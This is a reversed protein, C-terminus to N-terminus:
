HAAPPPTGPGVGPAAGVADAPIAAGAGAPAAGVPATADIKIAVEDKILNDPKGPYVINFDKRNIFFETSAKVGDPGVTLVAPVTVSKTVGRLTLDGTVTHTAGAMKSEAPAGATIATSTFTARPHTAVDFFDPSRLHEDLKAADTKVSALDVDFSLRSVNSGDLVAEGKWSEFTGIHSETVKAGTFAVTGVLTSPAGAPTPAPAAAPAPPAPENVVAATKDKSPDACAALALVLLLPLSRM